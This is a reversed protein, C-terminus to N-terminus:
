ANWSRAAASATAITLNAWQLGGKAAKFAALSFDTRHFQAAVSFASSNGGGCPIKGPQSGGEGFDLVIKLHPSNV